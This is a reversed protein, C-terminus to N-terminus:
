IRVLSTEAKFMKIATVGIQTATESITKLTNKFLWIKWNYEGTQGWLLTSQSFIENRENIVIETWTNFRLMTVEFKNVDSVKQLSDTQAMTHIDSALGSVVVVSTWDDSRGHCSGCPTKADLVDDHRENVGRQTRGRLTRERFKSVFIQRPDTLLTRLRCDYCFRLTPYDYPTSKYRTPKYLRRTDSHDINSSAKSWLLQM